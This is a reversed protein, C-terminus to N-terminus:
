RRLLSFAASASWGAVVALFLALLGYLLPQQHALNYLWRELGAKEVYIVQELMDVIQGERTIFFRVRYNGATLNAPLRIDARFLTQEILDVTDEQLSYRDEAKRLRVLADLFRPSDTVSSTIGVARIARPITVEHRLNETESLAETLPASSAIAYFSPASSIRASETNMWIGFRREKKRVTVPGSPGQVTIVVDLPAEGPAPSDRKVAGYVLIESGTFDSTISVINQSLGAVITEARLPLATLLVMLAARLIM